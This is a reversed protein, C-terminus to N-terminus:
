YGGYGFPSGCVNCCHGQHGHHGHQHGHGPYPMFGPQPWYPWAAAQVAYPVSPGDGCGCGGPSEAPYMQPPAQPVHLDDTMPSEQEHHKGMYVDLSSSYSSSEGMKWGDDPSEHKAPMAYEPMGEAVPLTYGPAAPMQPMAPYPQAEPYPQMPMQPYPHMMQPYHHYPMHGCMCSMDFVPMYCFPMPMMPIAAEKEPPCPEHMPPMDMEPMVPPPAMPSEEEMPPPPPVPMPAPKPPAPKPPAPKPPAPKPPAPKPPAPKPPAPKPPAPKEMPPPPPPVPTLEPSEMEQKERVPKKPRGDKYPHEAPPKGKGKKAHDPLFIKMGPVIYDPNALHANLRKVEEFPVGYQRSIKWLTDGKQVIHVHM